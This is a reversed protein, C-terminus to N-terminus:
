LRAGCISRDLSPHARLQRQLPALYSHYDFDLNIAGGFHETSSILALAKGDWSFYRPNVPHPQIPSSLTM